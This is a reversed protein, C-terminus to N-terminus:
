PASQSRRAPSADLPRGFRAVLERRSRVGVKRFISKLHDQITHPSITLRASLSGTELGTFVAAVVQRERPTLGYLRSLRDFTEDSSAHRMTVALTANGGGELTAGEVVIWEGDEARELANVGDGSAGSRVLTAVPYIMAPLMGFAAYARAGPLADAWDRWAATEAVLRLNDDLLLIGPPRTTPMLGGPAAALSRRLGVGLLPAMGELLRLDQEGFPREDRARYAKLWGWCGFDDRCAVVVEDAIGVPRLVQDWRQSRAYDGRTEVKLSGVPSRRRAVSRMGAFDDGGYELELLRPIAPGYDHEAIGALTILTAPDALPWAWRDFGVLRKLETVVEYRLTLPDLGASILRTLRERCRAQESESAV